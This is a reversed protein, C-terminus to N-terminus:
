GVTGLTPLGPPGQFYTGAINRSSKRRWKEKGPFGESYIRSMSNKNQSTKRRTVMGNIDLITTCALLRSGPVEWSVQSDPNLFDWPHNFKGSTCNYGRQVLLPLGQAREMSACIHAVGWGDLKWPIQECSHILVMFLPQVASCREASRVAPRGELSNNLM